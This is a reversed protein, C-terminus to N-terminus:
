PLLFGTTMLVVLGGLLAMNTRRGRAFFTALVAAFYVANFGIVWASLSRGLLQILLMVAVNCFLILGIVRRKIAWYHADLDPHDKVNDPFIM